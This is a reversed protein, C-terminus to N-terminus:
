FLFNEILVFDNNVFTFSLFKCNFSVIKTENKPYKIKRMLSSALPIRLDFIDEINYIESVQRDEPTDYWFDDLENNKQWRVARMFNRENINIFGKIEIDGRWM